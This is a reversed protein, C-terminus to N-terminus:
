KSLNNFGCHKEFEKKENIRIRNVGTKSSVVLARMLQYHCDGTSRNPELIRSKDYTFSDVFRPLGRDDYDSTGPWDCHYDFDSFNKLSPVFQSAGGYTKSGHCYRNSLWNNWNSISVYRKSYAGQFQQFFTRGQRKGLSEEATMIPRQFASAVSIQNPISAQQCNKIIEDGSYQCEEKFRWINKPNLLSGDPKKWQQPKNTMFHEINGWKIIVKYNEYLPAVAESVKEWSFHTPNAVKTFLLPKAYQGKFRLSATNPFFVNKIWHVIREHPELYVSKWHTSAGLWPVLKPVAIGESEMTKYIEIMKLTPNSVKHRFNWTMSGDSNYAKPDNTFDLYLYDIGANMLQIAHKRILGPQRSLCYYGNIPQEIWHHWNIPGWEHSGKKRIKKISFVRGDNFHEQYALSLPCHYTTYQIGFSQLKKDTRIPSFSITNNLQYSSGTRLAKPIRHSFFDLRNFKKQCLGFLYKNFQKFDKGMHSLAPRLIKNSSGKFVKITPISNSCVFGTLVKGDFYLNAIAQPKNILRLPNKTSAKGLVTGILIMWVIFFHKM